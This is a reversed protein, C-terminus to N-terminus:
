RNALYLDSIRPCVLGRDLFSLLYLVTVIPVVRYDMQRLTKKVDITSAAELAADQRDSVDGDSYQLKEDGAKATSADM